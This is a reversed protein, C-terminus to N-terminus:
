LVLSFVSDIFFLFHHGDDLYIKVAKFHEVCTVNEAPEDVTVSLSQVHRFPVKIVVNGTM